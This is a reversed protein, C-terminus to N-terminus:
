SNNKLYRENIVRLHHLAHGCIMYGLALVTVHGLATRGSRLLTDEPFSNYLSISAKRVTDFEYLLDPLTRTAPNAAAAYENEDFSVVQQPDRRAFRLARYAFIRETDILHIIVQKITWKGEAYAFNGKEEALASIFNNIQQWNAALASKLDNEAVLTIYHEFYDPYSSQQPRM